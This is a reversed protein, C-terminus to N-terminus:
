LICVLFALNWMIDIFNDIKKNNPSITLIILPATFIIFAQFVFDLLTYFSSFLYKLQTEKTLRNIFNSM